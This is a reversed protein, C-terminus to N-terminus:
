IFKQHTESKELNGPYCSILYSLGLVINGFLAFLLGWCVKSTLAFSKECKIRSHLSKPVSSDVAALNVFLIHFRMDWYSGEWGM